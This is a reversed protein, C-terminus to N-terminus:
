RNVAQKNKNKIAGKPGEFKEKYVVVLRFKGIWEM